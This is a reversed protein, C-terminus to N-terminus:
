GLTLESLNFKPLLDTQLSDSHHDYTHLSLMLIRLILSKCLSFLSSLILKHM